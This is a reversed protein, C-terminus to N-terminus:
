NGSNHPPRPSPEGSDDATIVNEADTGDEVILVEEEIVDPTPEFESM